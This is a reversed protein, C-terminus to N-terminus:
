APQVITRTRSGGGAARRFLVACAVWVAIFCGDLPLAAPMRAALAIGALVAHAGAMAFLANAMGGPLSRALAAGVFGVLLVGGYMLNAPNGENGIMGVALNVWVLALAAVIALGAAVRYALDHSRQLALELAMGTVILLAGAVAFDFPGWKVEPSFQMAEFQIMLLGFVVVLVRLVSKSSM